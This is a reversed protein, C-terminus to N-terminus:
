NGKLVRAEAWNVQDGIDLTDAGFDVELRLINVGKISINVAQPADGYSFEQKWVEKGDTFIRAVTKAHRSSGDQLGVIASFTEYEKKLEYDLTSQSHVGLGKRFVKGKMRMPSGTVAKDRKFKFPAGLFAKEKVEIPKLDSLFSLRDSAFTLKQIKNTPLSSIIEGVKFDLTPTKGEVVKFAEPVAPLNSYGELHLTGSYGKQPKSNLNSFIIGQIRDRKIKRTKGQFEISVHTADMGKFTGQVRLLQPGRRVFVVDQTPPKDNLAKEFSNDSLFAVRLRIGRIKNLPFEFDGLPAGQPHAENAKGRISFSLSKPDAKLAKGSAKEGTTFQVFSRRDWLNKLDTKSLQPVKSPQQELSLFRFTQLEHWPVSHSTSKSDALNLRLEKSSLVDLVGTKSSGDILEIYIPYYSKEASKNESEEQAILTLGMGVFIPAAITLGFFVWLRIILVSRQHRLSHSTRM